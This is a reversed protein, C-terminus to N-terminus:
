IKLLIKRVSKYTEEPTEASFVTKLLKKKKFFKILAESQSFYKEIRNRVVDIKDDDRQILKTGCEDCDEIIKKSINFIKGCSPCIRRSLARREVEIISVDIYIVVDINTIELLKKAQELTRPFGDLIYGKKCDEKKIRDCIIDIIMGDPVLEGRNIIAEVIKGINTQRQIHDRLIDGTSIQPLGFEKTILKAQSGKGSGPAGFLVIKM